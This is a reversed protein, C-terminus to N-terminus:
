VTFVILSFFFYPIVEYDHLDDGIDVLIEDHLLFSALKQDEELQFLRIVLLRLIRYDFSKFKSAMHIQELTLTSTNESGQELRSMMHCFEQEVAWFHKGQM